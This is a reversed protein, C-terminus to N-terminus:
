AIKLLLDRNEILLDRIERLVELESSEVKTGDPLAVRLFGNTDVTLPYFQGEDALREGDHSPATDVRIATLLEAILKAPQDNPTNVAKPDIAQTGIQQAM